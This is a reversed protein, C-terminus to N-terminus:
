SEECDLDSDDDPRYIMSGIQHLNFGRMAAKKLFTQAIRFNRLCIERFGLKERLKECDQVPDISNIFELSKQSFPKHAQQYGMWVM